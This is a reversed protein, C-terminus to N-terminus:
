LVMKSMQFGSSTRLLVQFQGNKDFIYKVRSTTDKELFLACQFSFTAATRNTFKETKEAWIIHSSTLQMLHITM